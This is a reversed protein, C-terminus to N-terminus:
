GLDGVIRRVIKKTIPQLGAAVLVIRVVALFKSQSTPASETGNVWFTPRGIHRRYALAVDRILQDRSMAPDLYITGERAGKLQKVHVRAHHAIDLLEEPLEPNAMPGHVPSDAFRVYQNTALTWLLNWGAKPLRVLAMSLAEAADAVEALAVRIDRPDGHARAMFENLTHYNALCQQVEAIFENVSAQIPGLLSRLDANLTDLDPM